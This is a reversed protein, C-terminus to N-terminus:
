EAREPWSLGGRSGLLAAPAQLICDGKAETPGAKESSSAPVPTSKSAILCPKRPRYSWLFLLTAQPIALSPPPLTHLTCLRRSAALPPASQAAGPRARQVCGILPRGSTCGGGSAAPGLLDASPARHIVGAQQLRNRGGGRAGSSSAPAQQAACSNCVGHVNALQQGLSVRQCGSCFSWGAAQPASAAGPGGAAALMPHLGATRLGSAEGAAGAARGRCPRAQGGEVSM